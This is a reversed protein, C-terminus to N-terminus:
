PAQTDPRPHVRAWLASVDEPLPAQLSLPQDTMPHILSLGAAHLALRPWLRSAAGGHRRDGIVPHGNDAAHRRIQHTRGTELHVELVSMGGASAQRTWHSRAKKGDIDTDWIGSEGPNGVVVIEYRREISHTRFGEAIGPNASRNLTFLVLGSAPTDLRHHLGVYDNRDRLLDFLNEGGDRTSQTPLGCPKNIALLWKDKHCVTYSPKVKSRGGFPGPDNWGRQGM